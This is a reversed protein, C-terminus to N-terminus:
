TTEGNREYKSWCQAAVASFTKCTQQCQITFDAHGDGDVHVHVIRLPYTLTSPKHYVLVDGIKLKDFEELTM